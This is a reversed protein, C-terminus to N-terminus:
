LHFIWWLITKTINLETINQNNIRLGCTDPPLPPPPPPPPPPPATPPRAWRTTAHWRTTINHLFFMYIHILHENSNRFQFPQSGKPTVTQFGSTKQADPSSVYAYRTDNMYTCTPPPAQITLIGPPAISDGPLAKGRIDEPPCQCHEVLNRTLRVSRYPSIFCKSKFLAM